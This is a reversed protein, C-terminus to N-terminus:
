TAPHPRGAERETVLISCITANKVKWTDNMVVKDDVCVINEPKLDLHVVSFTALYRCAECIQQLVKSM